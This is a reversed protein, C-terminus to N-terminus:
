VRVCEFLYDTFFPSKALATWALIWNMTVKIHYHSHFDTFITFISRLDNLIHTHTYWFVPILRSLISPKAIPVCQTHIRTHLRIGGAKCMVCECVRIYDCDILWGVLSMYLWAVCVCVTRLCRVYNCKEEIQDPNWGFIDNDGLVENNEM